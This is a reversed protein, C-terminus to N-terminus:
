SRRANWADRAEDLTIPPPTLGLAAGLEAVIPARLRARQLLATSGLITRPSGDAAVAGGDLVLVRDAQQPVLDMAHTACVLTAGARHLEALHRLLEQEGAPDLGATPEDLLLARPRMALLGALCARRKEGFSLTDVARDALARLGLRDLADHTRRAVEDEDLGQNRPGFAVDEAVTAAFLQDDPNQFLLALGAGVAERPNGVRAGDVRVEGDVPLLGVLAKLLTTKGAGNAGVVAVREGQGIRLTLDRLIPPCGRPAIARADLEIV